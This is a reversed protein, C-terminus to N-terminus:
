RNDQRTPPLRSCRSGLHRSHHSTRPTRDRLRQPSIQELALLRRRPTDSTRATYGMKRARNKQTGRTTASCCRRTCPAQSRRLFTCCWSLTRQSNTEGFLQNPMGKHHWRAMRPSSPALQSSGRTWTSARPRMCSECCCGRSPKRQGEDRKVGCPTTLAHKNRTDLVSHLGWRRSGHIDDHM